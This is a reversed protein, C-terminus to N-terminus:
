AGVLPGRLFQIVEFFAPGRLFRLPQLLQDCVGFLDELAMALGLRNPELPASVKLFCGAVALVCLERDLVITVLVELDELLIIVLFHPLEELTAESLTLCSRDFVQICQTGRATRWARSSARLDRM